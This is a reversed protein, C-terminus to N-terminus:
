IPKLAPVAKAFGVTKLPKAHVVPVGSPATSIPKAAVIEAGVPALPPAKREQPKYCYSHKKGAAWACGEGCDDKTKGKCPSTVKTSKHVPYTKGNYDFSSNGQELARKRAANYAALGSTKKSPSSAPAEDEDNLDPFVASAPNRPDIDEYDGTQPNYVQLSDLLEAKRVLEQLMGAEMKQGATRSERMGKPAPMCGPPCKPSKRKKKELSKVRLKKKMKFSPPKKKPPSSAQPMNKLIGKVMSDREARVMDLTKPPAIVQMERELETRSAADMRKPISKVRPM